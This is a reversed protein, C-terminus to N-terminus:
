TQAPNSKRRTSKQVCYSTSQIRVVCWDAWPQSATVSRWQALTAPSSCLWWRRVVTEWVKGVRYAPTSSMATTTTLKGAAACLGLLSSFEPTHGLVAGLFVVGKLYIAASSCLEFASTM